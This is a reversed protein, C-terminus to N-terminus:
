SVSIFAIPTGYVIEQPNVTLLSTLRQLDINLAHKICTCLCHMACYFLMVIAVLNFILRFGLCPISGDAQVVFGENCRKSMFSM